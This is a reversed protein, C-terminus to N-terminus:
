AAVAQRERATRQKKAANGIQGARRYVRVADEVDQDTAHLSM